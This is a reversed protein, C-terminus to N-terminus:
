APSHAEPLMLELLISASQIKWGSKSHQVYPQVVLSLQHHMLFSVGCAITVVFVCAEFARFLALGLVGIPGSVQM